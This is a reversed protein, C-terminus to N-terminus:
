FVQSLFLNINVKSHFYIFGRNPATPLSYEQARFDVRSEFELKDFGHLKANNGRAIKNTKTKGFLCM